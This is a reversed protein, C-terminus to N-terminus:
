EASGPDYDRLWALLGDFSHQCGDYFNVAIQNNKEIAAVRNRSAADRRERLYEEVRQREPSGYFGRLFVEYPNNAVQPALAASIEGVFRAM